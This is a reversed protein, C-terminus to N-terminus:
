GAKVSHMQQNVRLNTEETGTDGSSASRAAPLVLVPIPSRALVERVVAGHGVEIDGRFCLVILDSGTKEAVKIVADAPNGTRWVFSRHEGPCHQRVFENGWAPLDYEPREMLPAPYGDFTHVVTIERDADSQLYSEFELFASSTEQTGDLPVLLRRPEFASPFYAEPPVFVVPKSAARLVGLAINGAPRPGSIFARLGMVVGLVRPPELAELLQDAVPGKRERLLVGAARTERIHGETTRAEESVHVAEVESGVLRAIGIAANLVAGTEPSGSLAALLTRARQATVVGSRAHDTSSM